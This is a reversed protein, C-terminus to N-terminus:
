LSQGQRRQRWLSMGDDALWGEEKPGGLPWGPMLHLWLSFQSGRPSEWNLDRQGRPIFCVPLCDLPTFPVTPINNTIPTCVNKRGKYVRQEQSPSILTCPLMILPPSIRFHNWSDLLTLYVFLKSSTLCHAVRTPLARTRQESSVVWHWKPKEHEWSLPDFLWADPIYPSLSLSLSGSLSLSLTHTHTNTSPLM